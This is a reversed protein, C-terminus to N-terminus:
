ECKMPWFKIIHSYQGALSTPFPYRITELLLLVCTQYIIALRQCLRGKQNDFIEESKRLSKGLLPLGIDWGTMVDMEFDLIKWLYEVNKMLDM